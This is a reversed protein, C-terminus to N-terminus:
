CSNLVLKAENGTAVNGTPAVVADGPAAVVDGTSAVMASGNDGNSAVMASGDDGNAEAPICADPQSVALATRALVESYTLPPSAAASSSAM